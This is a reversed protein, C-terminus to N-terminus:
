GQKVAESIVDGGAPPAKRYGYLEAVIAAVVANATTRTLVPTVYRKTPKVVDLSIIKGDANSAGATFATTACGTIDTADSGNSQSGSQAKLTLVSGDTVDGLVALFRVSECGATDITAGTVATQAAVAAGSAVVVRTVESLNYM